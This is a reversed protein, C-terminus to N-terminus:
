TLGEKEAEREAERAAEAREAADPAMVRPVPKSKVPRVTATPIRKVIPKIITPTGFPLKTDGLASTTSGTGVSAAPIKVAPAPAPALPLTAKVAEAAEATRHSHRLAAARATIARLAAGTQSVIKAKFTPVTM